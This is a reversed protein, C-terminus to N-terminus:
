CGPAQKDAERAIGRRAQAMEASKRGGGTMKVGIPIRREGVGRDDNPQRPVAKIAINEQPKAIM